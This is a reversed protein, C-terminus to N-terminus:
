AKRGYTVTTTREPKLLPMRPDNQKMLQRDVSQMQLDAQRRYYEGRSEIRAKLAKCLVLGGIEIYPSTDKIGLQKSVLPQEAPAVLEWGEQRRQSMNRPDSEGYVSIRVWRHVHTDTDPVEPLLSPPRYTSDETRASADRTLLDRPTRDTNRQDNM